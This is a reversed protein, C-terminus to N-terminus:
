YIPVSAASSFNSTAGPNADRFWAQFNWLQGFSPLVPGTPSPLTRPDITLSIMGAAGSNQIQGPGVFRGIAGGLCLTGQSGGPMAILARDTSAIFFGFSWAPLGSAELILHEDSGRNSGSLQFVAGDPSASNPAAPTCYQTGITGDTRWRVPHPVPGLSDQAGAIIAGDASVARASTGVGGFRALLEVGSTATWLAAESGGTPPSSLGVLTTGDVSGAHPMFSNAGEFLQMGTAQTWRFGVPVVYGFVTSGDASVEVTATFNPAIPGLPVMGTSQTWVWPQPGVSGFYGYGAVVAGDASISTTDLLASGAVNDIPVMGTAATWRWAESQPGAGSGVVVLGDASVANARSSSYHVPDHINMTGGAETWVLAQGLSATAQVYGVITEGSGSMDTATAWSPGLGLATGSGDWRVAGMGSLWGAVFEGDRSVATAYSDSGNGGDLRLLGGAQTHRFAFHSGFNTGLGVVTSGDASILDAQGRSGIDLGLDQIQALCPATSAASVLVISFALQPTNM